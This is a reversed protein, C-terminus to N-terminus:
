IIISHVIDRFREITQNLPELSKGGSANKHGGGCFYKRAFLNVDIDGESRFSIKIHDDKEIFLAAFTINEISMAYNVVGETDGPMHKFRVLDERRLSFYAVKKQPIVELREGLCFGLLRMRDESFNNYILRHLKEGDVGAAILSATILYTNPYNCAYSFSGTDTVIGAYLCEAVEKKITEKGGLLMILEFVLEATSSVAVDSIVIDFGKEPEPHHDILIKVAKSAKLFGELSNARSFGNFDLCFLLASDNIACGAIDPNKDAVLIEEQWPLWQLFKPLPDPSVVKVNMFGEGKLFGYFGLSSGASDGDPNTHTVITIPKQKDTLLQKLNSIATQDM